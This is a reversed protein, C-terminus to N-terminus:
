SPPHCPASPLRGAAPSLHASPAALEPMCLGKGSGRVPAPQGYSHAVRFLNSKSSYKNDERGHLLLLRGTPYCAIMSLYELSKLQAHESPSSSSLTNFLEEIDRM